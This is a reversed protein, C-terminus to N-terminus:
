TSSIALVRNFLILDVVAFISVAHCFFPKGITPITDSM